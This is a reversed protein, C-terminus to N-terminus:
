LEPETPEFPIGALNMLHRTVEENPFIAAGAGSLSQIFRGIEELNAKDINTPAVFPMYDDKSWGNMAWMKTVLQRNVVGAIIEAFGNIAKLFTSTQSQDLARNGSDSGNFMFQAMVSRAIALDYDRITARADVNNTTGVPSFEFKVRPVNSMTGDPNRFYDTAIALGSKENQRVKSPIAEFAKVQAMAFKDGNLADRKINADYTLVPFGTGREYLISETTQFKERRYWAKYSARFLSRGEPSGKWPQTKFHLYDKAEIFHNGWTAPREQFVGTVNGLPEQIKWEYVTEPAIQILRGIGVLGDARKKFVPSILSYGWPFMDLAMQVMDDFTAFSSPDKIDGIDHFLAHELYARKEEYREDDQVQEPLQIQWDISRFTAGLVFLIGGYTSDDILQRMVRKGESGILSPLYEETVNGMSRSYSEVAIYNDQEAM